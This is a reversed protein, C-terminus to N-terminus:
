FSNSVSTTKKVSITSTNSSTSTCSSRKEAAPQWRLVRAYKEREPAGSAAADSLFCETFLLALLQYYRLNFNQETVRNYEDLFDQIRELPELPLGLEREYGEIQHQILNDSIDMGKLIEQEYTQYLTMPKDETPPLAEKTQYSPGPLPSIAPPSLFPEDGAILGSM